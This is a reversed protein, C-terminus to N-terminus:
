KCTTQPQKARCHCCYTATVTYPGCLGFCKSCLGKWFINVSGQKLNDKDQSVTQGFLHWRPHPQENQSIFFICCWMCARSASQGFGLVHGHWLQLTIRRCGHLSVLVNPPCCLQHVCAQIEEKHLKKWLPKENESLHFKPETFHAFILHVGRPKVISYARSGMVWILTSLIRAGLPHGCARWM